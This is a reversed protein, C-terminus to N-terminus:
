PLAFAVYSDGSKSGLKGGGCAIVVYQKGNLRYTAPTAYGPVPLPAEWLLKGTRKDYAHMRADKSNAIFVLGGKTVLPGGYGVNGTPPQGPKQSASDNGLPVKWLLKGTNLDVANLTGWPPKTGPYGDKDLFWNYGTMNYKVEDMISNSKGPSATTAPEKQDTKTNATLKKDKLHLLFALLEEREHGQIQKFAPMMNKGNELIGSLQQKSYKKRIDALPPFSAGNGKLESGHCNVCHRDYLARGMDGSNKPVDVMTLVAAIENSNVYLIGTEADVASGGWEGGGDFGPVLFIGEKGPPVFADKGKIQKFREMMEAHVEPNRDTIDAETITQRAFPQPLTPIPQTPWPEEGPLGNTPVPIEKIPFVPKGNIRDFLYVYGNKTIQAVADIRKGNVNITVLNPNAPLDRDWLDHHVVQYHWIYKGTEANLAILSNGYLGTGKRFGGYFDGSVTGTPVYVIGREEDLAMGAWSNAGGLKKWADKDPWTDYGKEGPHPITHFIWKLKGTRVDYARIHGPAADASEAVRAGMILVDKYIIGPTTAVIFPNYTGSDRDLNQSLDIYGNNGFSRVPQGTGAHIAFTKSGASYIIRKDDGTSNQWYVVGRSVKYYAFPDIAASTDESAPDFLWQQKGTAADLAFLKLRPTVGYLIGDIMVPNCQNQSRNGTDRDGSSYIWAVELQSVNLPNISTDSSYRIGDKSGAYTTWGSYDYLNSGSQNCSYIGFLAAVWLVCIIKKM